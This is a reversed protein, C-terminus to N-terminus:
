GNKIKEKKVNNEDVMEHFWTDVKRAGEMDFNVTEKTKRYDDEISMKVQNGKLKRFTILLGNRDVIRLQKM